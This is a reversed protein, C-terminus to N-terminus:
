PCQRSPKSPYRIEAAQNKTPAAPHADFYRGRSKVVTVAILDGPKILFGAWAFGMLDIKFFQRYNRDSNKPKVLIHTM